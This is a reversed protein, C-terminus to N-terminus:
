SRWTLGFSFVLGLRSEQPGADFGGASSGCELICSMGFKCGGGLGNGLLVNSTIFDFFFAVRVQFISSGARGDGVGAKLRRNNEIM